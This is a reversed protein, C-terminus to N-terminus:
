LINFVNKTSRIMRKFYIFFLKLKNKSNLRITNFKDRFIIKLSKCLYYYM